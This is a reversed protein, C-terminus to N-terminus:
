GPNFQGSGKLTAVQGSFNYTKLGERTTYDLAVLVTQFRTHDNSYMEMACGPLTDHKVNSIVVSSDGGTREVKLDVVKLCGSADRGTTWNFRVPVDRAPGVMVEGQYAQGTATVVDPSVKASLLVSNPEQKPLMCGGLAAILGACFLPQRM